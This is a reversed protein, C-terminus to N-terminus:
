RTRTGKSRVGGESFAEIGSIQLTSKDSKARGNLYSWNIEFCARPAKGDAVDHLLQAIAEWDVKSLEAMLPNPDADAPAGKIRAKWTTVTTSSKMAAAPPPAAPVPPAVATKAEQKLQEVVAPPAQNQEAEKARAAAEERAKKDAAEQDKRRQERAITELRQREAYMRRGLEGKTSEAPACWEARKVTISKHLRNAIDAPGAFHETVKKIVANLNSLALDAVALGETGLDAVPITAAYAVAKELEAKLEASPVFRILAPLPFDAPLLEALPALPQAETVTPMTQENVGMDDDPAIELDTEPFPALDQSM